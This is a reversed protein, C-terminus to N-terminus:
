TPPKRPTQTPPLDIGMPMELWSSLSASNPVLAAMGLVYATQTALPCSFDGLWRIFGITDSSRAARSTLRRLLRWFRRAIEANGFAVYLRLSTQSM